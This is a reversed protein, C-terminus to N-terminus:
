LAQTSRFELAGTHVILIDDGDPYNHPLIWGPLGSMAISDRMEDVGGLEIGHEEAFDQMERSSYIDPLELDETLVYEIIRPVGGSNSRKAFHLAVAKSSSVWAPGDLDEYAEEFDASTGHYLATGAKLTHM